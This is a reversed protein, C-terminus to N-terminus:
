PSSANNFVLYQWSLHFARETGFSDFMLTVDPVRGVSLRTADPSVPGALEIGNDCDWGEVL